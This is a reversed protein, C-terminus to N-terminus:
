AGDKHFKNVPLEIIFETYEGKISKVAIEGSHMYVISRVISLGLGIGSADASRSEDTKYFRNFIKPIEDESLGDGTNKIKISAIKLNSSLDFTITGNQNVFKVANEILNYFMQHMLDNDAEIVITDCDLGLIDVRKDEIKKEFMFVTQVAIDSINVNEYNIVMENAEFKSINLMTRILRSLRKIEDSVLLMYHKRQDKPITGDLIGDIFGGITTMPTRLEHSINAIFTKHITDNKSIIEAMENFSMALRKFEETEDVPLKLSYDGRIFNEATEAVKNFPESLKRAINYFLVASVATIFIAAGAFAIFLSRFFRNMSDAPATALIYFSQQSDTIESGSTKFHKVYCVSLEKTIGNIYGVKFYVKGNYINLFSDSFNVDKLNEDNEESSILFNGYSDFIFFSINYTNSFDELTNKIGDDKINHNKSYQSEVNSIVTESINNIYTFNENRFLQTSFVLMFTGMVLITIVLFAICLYYYKNFFSKKM